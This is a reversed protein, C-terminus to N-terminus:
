SEHLLHHMMPTVTLQTITPLGLQHKVFSDISIKKKIKTVRYSTVAVRLDSRGLLIALRCHCMPHLELAECAPRACLESRHQWVHHELVRGWISELQWEQLALGITFTGSVPISEKQQSWFSVSRGITEKIHLSPLRTDIYLKPLRTSCPCAEFPLVCFSHTCCTLVVVNQCHHDSM